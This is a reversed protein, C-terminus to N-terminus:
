IRIESKDGIILKLADEKDKIVCDNGILSKTIKKRKCDITVNKLVISNSVRGQLIKTGDGISTFPGISARNGIVCNKGISVPGRVVAREEIVSEEGLEVCGSINGKVTGRIDNKLEKLVLRNAELMDEPKGTDKWWDNVKKASVKYKDDKVLMNCADTIEFEGRGSPKLQKIKEFVSKRFLYVGVLALDSKPEKPKEELDVVKGDKLVAVGFRSADRVPCLLLSADDESKEFGKVFHTIGGKLLNDGLYVVFPADGIFNEALGVAHAIGLPAGQEIYTIRVGHGLGDGLLEKVQGPGHDGLVVGIDTIGAAKLDELVYLLLPKNAVPILHKNATHTLPQLRTGRGGALILGKM